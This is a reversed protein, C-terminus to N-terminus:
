QLQQEVSNEAFLFFVGVFSESNLSCSFGFAFINLLM